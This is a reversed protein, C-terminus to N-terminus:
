GQAGDRVVEKRATQYGALYSVYCLAGVFGAFGALVGLNIVQPIM